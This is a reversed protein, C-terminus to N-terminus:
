PEFKGGSVAGIWLGIPFTRLHLKEEHTSSSKLLPVVLRTEDESRCDFGLTITEMWRGEEGVSQHGLEGGGGQPLPPLLSARSSAFIGNM